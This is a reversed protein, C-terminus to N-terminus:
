GYVRRGGAWTAVVEVDDSLAVLDADYGAAIAGKRGEVGIARAPVASAMTAATAIDAVGWRVVNRVVDAMTAVSGAITGDPLRMEGDELRAEAGAIRFSGSELGAPDVGDTILAVRGPGFARVLM